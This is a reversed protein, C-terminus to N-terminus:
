KNNYQIDYHKTDNHQTYNQQTNNHQIDNHQSDHPLIQKAQKANLSKLKQLHTSIKLRFKHFILNETFFTAYIISFHCEPYHWEAYDTLM